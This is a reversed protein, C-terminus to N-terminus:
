IDKIADNMTISRTKALQFEQVLLKLEADANQWAINDPNSQLISELDSILSAYDVQMQSLDNKASLISTKGTSMRNNNSVIRNAIEDLVKKVESYQAM